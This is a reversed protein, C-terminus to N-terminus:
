SIKIRLSIIVFKLSYYQMISMVKLVCLNYVNIEWTFVYIINMCKFNIVFLNTKNNITVACFQFQQVRIEIEYKTRSLSGCVCM